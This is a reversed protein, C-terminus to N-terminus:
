NDNEMCLKYAEDFISKVGQITVPTLINILRACWENKSDGLSNISYDDM